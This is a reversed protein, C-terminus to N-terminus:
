LKKMVDDHTERKDASVTFQIVYVIDRKANM